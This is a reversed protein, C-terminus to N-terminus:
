IINFCTRFGIDRKETHAGLVIYLNSILKEDSIVRAIPSLIHEGIVNGLSIVSSEGANYGEQVKLLLYHTRSDYLNTFGLLIGPYNCVQLFNFLLRNKQNFTVFFATISIKQVLLKYLCTEIKILDRSREITPPM